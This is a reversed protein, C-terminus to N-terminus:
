QPGNTQDADTEAEDILAALGRATRAASAYWPVGLRQLIKVCSAAPRTYSFIFIPLPSRSALDALGNEDQELRGASSLSTALVVADVEASRVLLDIAPVLTEGTTLQATLDVPNVPSGYPPMHAKLAEQLPASLVPVTLGNAVCADALWIGAGGSTAVIGIRPRLPLAGVGLRRTKAVAQLVDTLDEESTVELVGHERFLRSYAKSDGVV